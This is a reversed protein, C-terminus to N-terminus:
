PSRLEKTRTLAKCLYTRPVFRTHRALNSALPLLDTAGGGLSTVNFTILALAPHVLNYLTAVSRRKAVFHPATKIGHGIDLCTRYVNSDPGIKQVNWKQLILLPVDMPEVYEYLDIRYNKFCSNRDKKRM